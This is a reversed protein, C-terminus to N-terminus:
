RAGGALLEEFNDMGISLAISLGIASWLSYRGGVWDWFAFMNAPDIGFKTVEEENTSLAVFHKAVHKEDKASKLFWDRASHANTMTEQTTFTKSAVLFLTTEPSSPRSRRPWTRATSTPSSTCAAPRAQAYPKLAETVMVPGLDSGGIGINVVDTIPKGTYGRWTGDRIM